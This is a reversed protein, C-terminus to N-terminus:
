GVRYILKQTYVRWVRKNAAHFWENEHSFQVVAMIITELTTQEIADNDQGKKSSMIHM